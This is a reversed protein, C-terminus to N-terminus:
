STNGDEDDSDEKRPTVGSDMDKTDTPTMTANTNPVYYQGTKIDFIVDGLSLGVIDLGDIKEFGEKFRIENKTLIGAEVALKYAEYREKIDGRLLDETEFTFYFTDKESELLLDKNLACEIDNLIPLVANLINEKRDDGLNFISKIDAINSKKNENMQMEVFTQSSEKFEIGDNLVIVNEENSSYLKNWANKLKTMVEDSLKKKAMLFGKKNGGTGILKQEYKMNALATALLMNNEEVIGKGEIGDKTNRTIKVFDLPLYKNARVMLNYKKFIPDPERVISIESSDVYHLSTVGLSSRNIYLYSNGNLLYDKVIAKKLQTGNLTDQSDDNILKCRYDNKIEEIKDNGEKDQLVKKLKVELTSVVFSIFNVSSAVSPINMAEDETIRKSTVVAQLLPDDHSVVDDNSEVTEDARVEEIGLLNLLGM